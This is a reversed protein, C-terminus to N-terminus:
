LKTIKAMFFGEMTETPKIRVAKSVESNYERGEWESLVPLIEIEKYLEIKEMKIKGEFKKLAWDIVGENEEPSLTCTSYLLTAGSRAADIASHFMQRQYEALREVRKISWNNYTKPKGTFFRGELSCPVDVLVRDFVEGFKRGVKQAELQMVKVNSVALIELNHKLIFNRVRSRDNAIIQGTNNMMAAMQTTKSGPAATIDLIVEDPQPDLVIVPLMSSLNQLYLYGGVFLPSYSVSKGNDEILVFADKYWSVREFKFGEETLREALEDANIKITNARFTTKKKHNFSEVVDNYENEPVIQKLRELFIEPLNNNM